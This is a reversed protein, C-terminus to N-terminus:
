QEGGELGLQRAAWLQDPQWDAYVHEVVAWPDPERAADAERRAQAFEADLEARLQTERAEDWGQMGELATRARRLPDRELWPEVEAEDRYRGADDSTTHPAVRYSVAEILTPGEGTRAREVAQRVTDWVAFVDNGDVTIGPIGYGAARAAIRTQRMQRTTPVSIAWGNNTVLFVVPSNRVAAFNLAEHFDGESTGGDGITALVVPTPEGPAAQQREADALGVAQPLQTAIPIYPPLLRLEPPFRYGAEHPTWLSIMTDLPLGHTLMLGTERYSPVVWDRATLALGAGVQVAEQGRFLPYVGIRGQRQLTVLKEDTHRARVLARYAREMESPDFPLPRLPQGAADLYRLLDDAPQAETIPTTM